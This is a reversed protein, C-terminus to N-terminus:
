SMAIRHGQKYNLSVIVSNMIVDSVGFNGESHFLLKGNSLLQLYDLTSIGCNGMYNGEEFYFKGDDERLYTLIFSCNVTPIFGQGCINGSECPASMAVAVTTDYSKGNLIDKGTGSWTGTLNGLFATSQPSPSAILVLTASPLTPVVPSAILTPTATPSLSSYFPPIKAAVLVAYAGILAGLIVAVAGIIAAIIVARNVDKKDDTMDM